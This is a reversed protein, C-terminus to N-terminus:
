QAQELVGFHCVVHEWCNPLYLCVRDGKQVGKKSLFNATKNILEFLEGYTFKKDEFILAIKNRFKRTNRELIVGWNMGYHMPIM